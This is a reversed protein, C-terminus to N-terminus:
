ARRGAGRRAAASSRRARRAYWADCPSCRVSASASRSAPWRTTRSSAPAAGTSNSSSTKLSSSACRAAASTSFRGGPCVNSVVAPASGGPRRRAVCAAHHARANDLDQRSGGGRRAPAAARRSRRPRCAARCARVRRARRREIAAHGSMTPVRSRALVRSHARHAVALARDRDVSRGPRGLQPVSAVSRAARTLSRTRPPNTVQVSLPRKPARSARHVASTEPVSFVRLCGRHGPSKHAPGPHRARRRGPKPCPLSRRTAYPALSMEM